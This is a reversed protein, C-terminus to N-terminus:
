RPSSSPTSGSEDSDDNNEGLVPTMKGITNTTTTTESAPKSSTSTTTTTSSSTPEGGALSERNEHTWFSNLDILINVVTEGHGSAILDALRIKHPDGQPKIMDYIEDQIDRLNVPEHNYRKLQRQIARFFYNLDFPNLYGKHDIDLIRFLYQLSQPESRNELALVFDLYSKYDMEGSYTVCEQFVRELFVDTLTGSGYRLNIM